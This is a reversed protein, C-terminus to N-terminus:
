EERWTLVERKAGVVDGDGDGAGYGAGYGYGHGHGAGAGSGYGHGNGDGRGNGNGYGAGNSCEYVTVYRHGNGRITAGALMLETLLAV